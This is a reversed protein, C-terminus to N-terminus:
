SARGHLGGNAGREHQREGYGEEGEPKAGQVPLREQRRQRLRVRDKEDDRPKDAQEM